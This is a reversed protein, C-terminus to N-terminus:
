GHVYQTFGEDCMVPTFEIFQYEALDHICFPDQQMLSELQTRDTLPSLVVGGTRPEQPGSVVFYNNKYGEELFARHAVLYNDIEDLPKKYQLLIVFM